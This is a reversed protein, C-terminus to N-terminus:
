GAVLLHVALATIAASSTLATVLRGRRGTLARGLLAGGGALLLQWSASAAFAALTFVAQGLRDTDAGSGSGVVLAAFYVVTTPNLLTIGLFTTYARAPSPPGGVRPAAAQPARHQRVAATAARIALVVLVCASVWRLPGMVPAVVQAAAAGAVTAVLAYLGDATAVGLAACAGVRWSTRATLGVLYTAVAGVPMAIGYGAVLGAVLHGSM